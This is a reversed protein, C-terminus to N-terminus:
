SYQLRLDFWADSMAEETEAFTTKTLWDRIRNRETAWFEHFPCPEIQGCGEIGLFCRTFFDTGDIAEVVEMLSIEEPHRALHVGGNLGRRAKVIGTPKLKSLIQSLYAPPCNLPKALEAASVTKGEPQRCLAIVASVAYQAGQSLFKM